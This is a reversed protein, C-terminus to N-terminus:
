KVVAHRLAVSIEFFLFWSTVEVGDDMEIILPHELARVVFCHM